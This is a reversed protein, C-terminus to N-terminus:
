GFACPNQSRRSVFARGDPRPLIDKEQVLDIRVVSIEAGTDKWAPLEKGNIRVAKMHKSGPQATAVKVFEIHYTAVAQPAETSQTVANGHTPQQRNGSLVLCKNRLHETSNRYCSRPEEAKVPSKPRPIFKPFTLTWGGM